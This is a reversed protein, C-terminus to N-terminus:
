ERPVVRIEGVLPARAAKVRCVDSRKLLPYERERIVTQLEPVAEGAHQRSVRVM